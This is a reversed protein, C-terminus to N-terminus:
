DQGSAEITTAPETRIIDDVGGAAALFETLKTLSWTSFVQRSRAQNFRGPPSSM